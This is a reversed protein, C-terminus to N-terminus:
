EWWWIAVRGPAGAGGTGAAGAGGGGNGGCGGGGGGSGYGTGPQGNGGAGGAGGLGGSNGGAGGNGGNSGPSSGGAGGGGPGGGNVGGSTPIGPLAGAAGRAGAGGYYGPWGAVAAAGTGFGGKGPMQHYGNHTNNHTQSADTGDRTPIGPFSTLSSGPSATGPGAGVWCVLQDPVSGSVTSIFSDAGSQGTSSAAGGLGGAGVTVYYTATPTVELPVTHEISAGGGAGGVSSLHVNGPRGGGGGGGGGCGRAFVAQVGAPITIAYTGPTTFEHYVLRPSSM